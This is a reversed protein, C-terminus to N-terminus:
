SGLFQQESSIISRLRSHLTDLQPELERFITDGTAKWSQTLQQTCIRELTPTMVRVEDDILFRTRQEGPMLDLMTRYWRVFAQFNSVAAQLLENGGQSNGETFAKRTERFMLFCNDIIEPAMPMRDAIYRGPTGTSVEVTATGFHQPPLEWEEDALPRGNVELATIMHGPDIYDKIVEVLDILRPLNEGTITSQKGDIRVSVM